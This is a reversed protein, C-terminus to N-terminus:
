TYKLPSASTSGLDLGLHCYKDRFLIIVDGDCCSLDVIWLQTSEDQKIITLTTISKLALITM